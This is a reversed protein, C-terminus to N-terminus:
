PTDFLFIALTCTLRSFPMDVSSHHLISKNTHRLLLLEGAQTFCKAAENPNNLTNQYLGGATIYTDGAEQNLGGVKYANAAQLYLEAADEAGREKSSALWAKKSKALSQEAESAYAEAKIKQRKALASM